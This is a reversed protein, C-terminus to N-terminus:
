KFIISGDLSFIRVGDPDAIVYTDGESIALKKFYNKCDDCMPSSIGIPNDSIISLQKEAHSANAQGEVGHDRCGQNGLEHGIENSKKIM